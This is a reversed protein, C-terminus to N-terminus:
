LAFGALMKDFEKQYKVFMKKNPNTTVLVIDIIYKGGIKKGYDTKYLITKQTEINKLEINMKFANGIKKNIKYNANAGTIVYKLSILQAIKNVKNIMEKYLTLLTKNTYNKTNETNKTVTVLVFADKYKKNLIVLPGSKSNKEAIVWDTGVKLGFTPERHSYEKMEAGDDSFNDRINFSDIIDDIVKKDKDGKGYNYNIYIFNNGSPIVYLNIAGSDDFILLKKAPLGNIFIDKDEQFIPLLKGNKLYNMKIDPVINVIDATYPFKRVYVEMSGGDSDAPNDVYVDNEGIYIFKWIGLKSISFFPSAANEFINSKDIIKEQRAFNIVKDALQGNDSAMDSQHREAWKKISNANIVYGMSGSSDSFIASSIGAVKSNKDIVAGGSSGYSVTADTKIWNVGNIETKGSIIGRTITASKGGIDPYGIAIVEDNINSEDTQQLELFPYATKASLGSINEIQLLAIDLDKDSNILKATYSCDPEDTTNESLCIIYGVDRKTNYFSDKVEVVHQNTLILGASNISVGSGISYKILNYNEDLVFTRIKVISKFAENSMTIGGPQNNNLLGTNTTQANTKEFNFIFLALFLFTFFIKHM